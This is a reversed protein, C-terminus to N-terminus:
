SRLMGLSWAIVAPLLAVLTVVVAALGVGSLVQALPARQPRAASRRALCERCYHIGDWTTACEQCCLRRCAMCTAYAARTPHLACVRAIATSM